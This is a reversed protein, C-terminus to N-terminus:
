GCLWVVLAGGAPEAGGPRHVRHDAPPRLLRAGRRPPHHLRRRAPLRRGSLHPRARGAAHPRPQARLGPLGGTAGPPPILRPPASCPHPSPCRCCCGAPHHPTPSARTCPLPPPRRAPWLAVGGPRPPAAEGPPVVQETPFAALTDETSISLFECLETLGALQGVEDEDKLQVVIAQLPTTAPPRPPAPPPLPAPPPRPVFRVKTAPMLQQQRGTCCLQAEWGTGRGAGVGPGPVWGVACGYAAGVPWGLSVGPGRRLVWVWGSARAAAWPPGRISTKMGPGWAACCAKCRAAACAAPCRLVHKHRQCGSSLFAWAPQM